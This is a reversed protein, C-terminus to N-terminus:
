QPSMQNLTAGFARRWTEARGAANGAAVEDLGKDWGVEVDATFEDQTLAHPM